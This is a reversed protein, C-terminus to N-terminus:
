PAPQPAMPASQAPTLVFRAPAGDPGDKVSSATYGVGQLGALETLLAEIRAPDLAQETLWQATGAIAASIAIRHVSDFDNRPAGSEISALVTDIAGHTRHPRGKAM